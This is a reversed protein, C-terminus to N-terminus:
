FGLNFTFVRKDDGSQERVPFGFNLIIPIPYALGFGFGVSARVEQMDVDFPEVGLVGWDFFVTGRLSEVRQYTGPQVESRFPYQFEITGSLSTEGGVAFGTRADVPGVGRYDFGRLSRAGGLFYRESYPIDDTSGYPQAVAADLGVLLTPRTGDKRTWTPIYYSGGFTGTAFDFDGGFVGGNVTSGANVRYGDRPLVINDLKRKSLDFTLGRFSHEGLAVQDRLTSLNRPDELGPAAAIAGDLNDLELINNSFGVAGTLDHTFKRGLRISQRFRDEDHSDYRRLLKYLDTDLSVPQLHSRFIDPEVFRIRFTSVRTGPSLQLQLTQGAGHFAEKHYIESFSRRWSSPFDGADFNSMTLSVVGFVGDNSDVGGSLHFDVVKGEQVEFQLDVLSPDEEVPLFRYTPDRHELRRMDDRFYGTYSIRALSRNIENLDAFQGPFVSLERRLVRDRTHHSGAFVIERIRLRRGQVIRYTVAVTKAEVDFVLSPELFKWSVRRPLSDHALYGEDGYRDRLTFEDRQVEIREYSAGPQLKLDSLLEAEDLILDVQELDATREPDSWNMARISLESVTYREGEDVVIHVVVGGRSESFELRELEVVADLWGRDRYVNRMALLDAELSEEVFPAGYWSVLSPPKLKRQSLHSLGSKFFFLFRKDPMSDNGRIEIGKVRVKPGERIDFIVDPLSETEGRKVIDVEVFFFGEAHYGELLRQRVREAQHVFLETQSELLAWRKLTKEPIKDNGLFRAERDSPREEVTLVIEIGGEVENLEAVANVHFSTWLRKLGDDVARWDLPQGVKQGLATLLQAKTYRREGTVRIAVVTVPVPPEDEAAPDQEEVPAPEAPPDQVEQPLPAALFLLLWPLIM